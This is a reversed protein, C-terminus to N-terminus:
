QAQHELQGIQARGLVAQPTKNFKNWHKTLSYRPHTIQDDRQAFWLDVWDRKEGDHLLKDLVEKKYIQAYMSTLGPIHFKFDVDSTDDHWNDKTAHSGILFVSKIDKFKPLDEQISYKDAFWGLNAHYVQHAWALKDLLLKSPSNRTTIYRPNM